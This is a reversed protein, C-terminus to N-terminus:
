EIGFAKKLTPIVIPDLQEYGVDVLHLGDSQAYRPNLRRDTKSIRLPEELDLCALNEEATYTRIWDNYQLIGNLQDGAETIPCVTTPIPIVNAARCQAVWGRMKAQYDPFDGPFYAACEKIFIAAPKDTTRALLEKIKDSKDFQGEGVYEFNYDPFRSPLNWAEGVSAGM